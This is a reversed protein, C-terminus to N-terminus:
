KVKIKVHGHVTFESMCDTCEFIEQGQYTQEGTKIWRESYCKPCVITKVVKHKTKM